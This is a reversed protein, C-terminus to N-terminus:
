QDLSSTLTSVEEADTITIPSTVSINIDATDGKGPVFGTSWNSATNWDGGSPNIWSITSLVTRNELPEVFLRFPMRRQRLCSGSRNRRWRTPLLSRM